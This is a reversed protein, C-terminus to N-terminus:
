PSEHPPDITLVNLANATLVAWGISFECFKALALMIVVVAATRILIWVAIGLGESM